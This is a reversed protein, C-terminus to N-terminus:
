LLFRTIPAACAATIIFYMEYGLVMLGFALCFCVWFSLCFDCDFMDAFLSLGKTDFWDRIKTRLGTKGLFLIIFAALLAVKAIQHIEPM